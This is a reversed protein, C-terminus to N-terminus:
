TLNLTSLKVSNSRFPPGTCSATSSRHRSTLVKHEGTVPLCPLSHSPSCRLSSIDAHGLHSLGQQSSTISTILICVAAHRRRGKPRLMNFGVAELGGDLRAGSQGMARKFLQPIGWETQGKKEGTRSRISGRRAVREERRIWPVLLLDDALRERSKEELVRM